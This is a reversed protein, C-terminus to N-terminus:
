LLMILELTTGIIEVDYDNTVLGGSGGV